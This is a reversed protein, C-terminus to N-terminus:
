KAAYTVMQRVAVDWAPPGDLWTGEVIPYAPSSIGLLHAILFSEIILGM